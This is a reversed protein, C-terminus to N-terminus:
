FHWHSERSYQKSTFNPPFLQFAITNKQFCEKILEACKNNLIQASPKLGRTTLHKHMKTIARILEHEVRSKIPEVPMTNSDVDYMVMIYKLGKNSTKPFRGTQDTFFGVIEVCKM